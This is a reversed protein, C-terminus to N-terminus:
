ITTGRPKFYPNIEKCSPCRYLIRALRMNTLTTASHGAGCCRCVNIRAPIHKVSENNRRFYLAWGYLAIKPNTFRAVCRCFINLVFQMTVFTWAPLYSLRRFRKRLHPLVAQSPKKMYVYSSYLEQWKVLQIAAAEEALGVIQDFSFRNVHGGGEMLFRYLNDDFGYGNPVTIILMGDPTLVRGIELLTHHPNPFHEMTNNCIVLSFSQSKFPLIHSEANIASAGSHTASIRSLSNIDTDVAIITFLRNSYDFSGSGSGLDLVCQGKGLKSFWEDM